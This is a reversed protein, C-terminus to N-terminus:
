FKRSLIEGWIIRRRLDDAEDDSISISDAPDPMSPQEDTTVRSGEEFMAPQPQIKPPATPM